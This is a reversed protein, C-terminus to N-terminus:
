AGAMDASPPVRYRYTALAGILALAAVISLTGILGLKALMLPFLLTGIAAGAKGCAAGLGAVSARLRVPMVESPLTYTTLNPGANMMTNFLIFGSFILLPDNDRSAGLRVVLIGAFMFLFGFIQMSVRTTRAM